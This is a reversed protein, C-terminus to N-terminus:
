VARCRAVVEDKGLRQTTSERVHSEMRKQDVAVATATEMDADEGPFRGRRRLQVPEQPLQHSVMGIVAQRRWGLNKGFLCFELVTIAVAVRQAQRAFVVGVVAM